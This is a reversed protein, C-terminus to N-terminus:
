PIVTFADSLVATSGDPNTVRVDWAQPGFAADARVNVRLVITKANLVLLVTAESAIGQGGEFTVTAGSQFGSGSITMMITAGANASDPVIKLIEVIPSPTFTVTPTPASGPTPSASPVITEVTPVPTETGPAPTSTVSTPSPPVSTFTSSPMPPPLTSTAEPLPTPTIFASSGFERWGLDPAAGTWGMLPSPPILEGDAAVYQTIGRDIAPSESQLLLGSFDDDVTGWTGDPGPNPAAVFLPDQGSIIGSGLNAQEADVGNNFFLTYATVSNASSAGQVRWVGRSASNAIVNNFAVLNDGGSIGIANGYFTNNFVRFAELADAGSLDEVTNANPMLGLGAKGHNAILNGAIVFRRNADEPDDAFDVFQIGDEHSGIIMNNWIDVEVVYPPVAANSLGIEIGDDGAYLIRNHEILLPRNPGELHIADDAADFLVNYRNTGGGGPQYRVLITSSHFYNFEAIFASSALIGNASNRIIFGRISPMQTLGSPILIAANGGMGDIVTRNNVPNIQDFSEATLSVAKDLVLNENYIGAGVQIIDGPEAANIATQITPYDEPVRILDVAQGGGALAMAGASIVVALTLLGISIVAALNLDSKRKFM